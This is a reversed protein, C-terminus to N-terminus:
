RCFTSTSCIPSRSMLRKPRGSLGLTEHYLAGFETEFSDCDILGALRELPHKGDLQNSLRARFLDDSPDCEPRRQRM